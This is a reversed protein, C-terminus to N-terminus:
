RSSLGLSVALQPLWEELEEKPLTPACSLQNLANWYSVELGLQSALYEDFGDLKSLGGSLYLKMPRSQETAQNEFFALSTRIERVLKEAYSELSSKLAAEDKRYATLMAEARGRDVQLQKSLFEALGQGGWTFERAFVPLRRSALLLSTKVHGVHLLAVPQESEQPYARVFANMLAFLDVDVAQVHLGAGECASVLADVADRKSAVLAVRMKDQAAAGGADASGGNPLVLFDMYVEQASFPIYRDAEFALSARFEEPKMKPVDVVRVVVAEGGVSATVSRSECGSSRVVEAIAAGLQDARGSWSQVKAHVLMDDSSSLYRETLVLNRSGVDLGVHLQSRKYTHGPAASPKPAELKEAKSTPAKAGMKLSLTPLKLKGLMRGKMLVRGKQGTPCFPADGHGRAALARKM